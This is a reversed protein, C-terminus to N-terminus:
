RWGVMVFPEPPASAITFGVGRTWTRNEGGEETCELDVVGQAEVYGDDCAVRFSIQGGPRAKSFTDTPDLIRGIYEGHPAVRVSLLPPGSSMRLTIRAAFHGTEQHCDVAEVLEFEPASRDDRDARMIAVQAAAAEAQTKAADAGADAAKRSRRAEVAQWTAVGMAVLAIGAAVWAAVDGLEM